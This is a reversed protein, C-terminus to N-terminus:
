PRKRIRYSNDRILIVTNKVSDLLGQSVVWRLRALIAQRNPQKLAIVIVGFHEEFELPVTHYFDRDTSLLIAQQQQVIEFLHFDDIGQFETGRIDIVQHGLEILLKEASKPFNEDLLFIM